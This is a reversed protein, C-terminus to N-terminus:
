FRKKRKSQFNSSSTPRKRKGGDGGGRGGRGGRGRGGGGRGRGGGGGGGGRGGRRREGSSSYPLDLEGSSFSGGSRKKGGGGGSGRSNAEAAYQAVSKNTKKSEFREFDAIDNFDELFDDETTSFSSLEKRKKKEKKTVPLRIFREEEYQQREMEEEKFAKTKTRSTDIGSGSFDQIELPEDGYEERIFNMMLSKEVKKKRREKNKQEAIDGEDEYPVAALRPPRYISQDSTQQDGGAGSTAASDLVLNLPNAKYHLGQNSISESEGGEGVLSSTSEEILPETSNAAKLLKDIQYKLKQDLPRIKELVVRIRVLQKIVPHDEVREGSAKLLMYFSINTCYSLLLHYKLELYSMGKATQTRTKRLKEILPLIVTRLEEVSNRFDRTLDIFEPSDQKLIELKEERPLQDINKELLLIQEPDITTTTTTEEEDKSKGFQVKELDRDLNALLESDEKKKKGKVIKTQQKQNMLPLDEEDDIFDTRDFTRFLKAQQRKAEELEEKEMEEESSDGVEDDYSDLYYGKKSKGWGTPIVNEVDKSDIKKMFDDDDDEERFRFDIEDDDDEDDYEGEDDDVDDEDSLDFAGVDEGDEGDSADSDFGIKNRQETFKDVEDDIDEANMSYRSKRPVPTGKQKKEVGKKRVMAKSFVFKELSSFPFSSFFLSFLFSLFPLFFVLFRSKQQKKRKLNKVSKKLFFFLFSSSLPFLNKFLIPEQNPEERSEASQCEGHERKMKKKRERGKKQYIKEREKLLHFKSDTPSAAVRLEFGMRSM